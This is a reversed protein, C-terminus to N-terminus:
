LNQQQCFLLWQDSYNDDIISVVQKDLDMVDLQYAMLLHHSSMLKLEDAQTTNDELRKLYYEGDNSYIKDGVIPHGLHALHARIQHKRGTKLECEIISFFENSKIVKFHTESLKGEALVHMKCRIVSEKLTNLRCKFELESWQPKGYVIARYIKKQMLSALKPQWFQANENTKGLLVIGSTDLDLRHLLHANSFESERQVLKVLTNIVNRTTKHVPLNAPKHVALIEDNQWLLEWNADVIGEYYDDIVWTIIQNEQIIDNFKAIKNNILCQHNNILKEINEVLITPMSFRLFDHLLMLDHRKHIVEKFSQQSKKISYV